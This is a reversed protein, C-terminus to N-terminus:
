FKVSVYWVENKRSVNVIWSGNLCGVNFISNSGSSCDAIVSAISSTLLSRERGVLERTLWVENMSIFCSTLPRCSFTRSSRCKRALTELLCRWCELSSSRWLCSASFSFVIERNSFVTCSCSLVLAISRLAEFRSVSCYSFSSVCVFPEKLLWWMLLLKHGISLGIRRGGIYPGSVRFGYLSKYEWM